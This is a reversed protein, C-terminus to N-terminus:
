WDCATRTEILFRLSKGFCKSMREVEKDTLIRDWMNLNSVVGSLSQQKEFGGGVEDQLLSFFKKFTM